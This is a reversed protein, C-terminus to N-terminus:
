QRGTAQPGTVVETCTSRLPRLAACTWPMSRSAVAGSSSTLTTSDATNALGSRGPGRRDGSGSGASNVDSGVGAPGADAEIAPSASNGSPNRSLVSHCIAVM